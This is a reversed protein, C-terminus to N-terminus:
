SIWADLEALVGPLRAFDRAVRLRWVPAAAAIQTALKLQVGAAPLGILGDALKTQHALAVAADSGRLPDRACAPAAPDNAVPDLLYVAALPAHRTWVRAADFQAVTSKLGPLVKSWAAVDLERAADSWVRASPIGPRVLAPHGPQIAILDDSMWRAGARVLALALTSKGHHKGGLFAIARERMVVCSGHLCLLGAHELALALVPGLVIARALEDRDPADPYWTISRSTFAVDFWGAHSFELRYGTATRALRYREAYVEREGIPTLPVTPAPGRSRFVRWDAHTAAVPLLDPFALESQIVFGAVAYCQPIFPAQPATAASVTV